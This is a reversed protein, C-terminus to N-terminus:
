EDADEGTQEQPEAQVAMGETYDGLDSIVEEGAEIGDTIEIYDESSIGTTINRRTVLGNEIVYCFSGDKGINVVEVPLTVVDKASAAHIKVKADVGLFIDDDPDDISVTASIVPTGKENQVAIHSMRTVTGEYTNDGLTIEAKQGEKVTDYDYKSLTVDVSAKDTNQITFLEMGQTVAEGNKLDAKSVIGNFEATIGKKGEEVLEKASKADLESLNDAVKLKKREEKTLSTSDAEAIAKESALDSQLEALEDSAAEMASELASTDATVTESSGSYSTDTEVEEETDEVDTGDSFGLDSGTNDTSFDAMNPMAPTQQKYDEYAEKAQDRSIQAQNRNEEATSLEQTNEESPDAQWAAFAMQYATDAQNYATQAQTYASNLESLKQQYQPLTEKQYTYLAAQYKNQIEQQKQAEAQAAAQQAQAEAAAQAAAQAAAEQQARTTAASIQSKLSAVYAKKDKVKKELEQVKKKADKQKQDAKDSKNVTDKTDYKTSKLNLEAKQNDKELDKTDFEILKTGKKVVDGQSFAVKKIQANVPSYYTKEEESGVTGSADVIEEVDGTQVTVVPVQPIQDEGSKRQAAVSIGGAAVLVVAAGIIIKKKKKKKKM